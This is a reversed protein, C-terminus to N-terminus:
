MHLHMAALAQITKGLGMEDGVLCRGGSKEIFRVGENQFPYLRKGDMSRIDEPRSSNLVEEQIMHGCKLLWVTREAYCFPKSGEAVKGCQPCYTKTFPM